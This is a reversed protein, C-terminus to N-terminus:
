ITAGKSELPNNQAEREITTLPGHGPFVRTDPPLEFLRETVAHLVQDQDGGPLDTRGITNFFLTDGTFIVGRPESYFCSSGPSHGPTHLVILDTELIHDGETFSFAAEPVEQDFTEFAELAADGLHSFLERNRHGADSGLFPQDEQHIGLPIEHGRQAYHHLITATASTHDIHGHTFVIAKPALNLVELRKIITAGEAGPDILLCEKKGTAVIYTNTFMSGVIVRHTLM